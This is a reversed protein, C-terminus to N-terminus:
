VNVGKKIADLLRMTIVAADEKTLYSNWSTQNSFFGLKVAREIYEGNTM